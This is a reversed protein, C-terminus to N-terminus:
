DTSETKVQKAAPEEASVVEELPRKTGSVGGGDEEKTEVKEAVEGDGEGEENGDEDSDDFKTKKGEFRTNRSDRREGGKRKKRRGQQKKMRGRAIQEFVEKWHEEEEEGELVKMTLASGRIELKDNHDGLVRDIVDQAQSGKTFRIVGETQGRDFEVWAITGYDGFVEKLDERSTQDSAGTFHLLLGKDFEKYETRAEVEKQEKQQQREQKEQKNKDKQAKREEGKLKYYDSKFYRVMEEDGFKLSEQDMFKQADEKTKYTAFVSGKFNKEKDRRMFIAETEGYQDLFPQITDIKSDLPFGKCYVTRAKLNLMYEANEEPLPKNPSRRIKKRDEHVEMLGSTSKSLATVLVDHDTSLEALRKFKVMIDLPVWGDDERLQLQLFRDRRLNANGFYYEIQRIIKKELDTVEASSDGSNKSDEETM